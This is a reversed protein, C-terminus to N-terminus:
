EKLYSEIKNRIINATEKSSTKGDIFSIVDDCITYVIDNNYFYNYNLESIIEDTKEIVLPEVKNAVVKKDGEGIALEGTKYFERMKQNYKKNSSFYDFPVINNNFEESSIFKIFEWVESKYPSNKNIACTRPLFGYIDNNKEAKPLLFMKYGENFIDGFLLDITGYSYANSCVFAINRMINADESSIVFDETSEDSYSIEPSNLEKLNDLLSILYDSNRNLDLLNSINSQLIHYTLYKADDNRLAYYKTGGTDKSLEKAISFFEEWTWNKDDIKIGKENLIKENAYMAYFDFSVPFLYQKNNIKVADMVNELYHGKNAEDIYNDLDELLDKDAYNKYSWDGYLMDPGKGAMLDKAVSKEYEEKSVEFNEIIKISIDKNITEFKRAAVKIHEEVVDTQIVIEKKGSNINDSTKSFNYLLPKEDYSVGCLYIIGNKDINIQNCSRMAVYDLYNFLGEEKGSDLDYKIMKDQDVLYISNKWYQIANPLAFINLKKSLTAKGEMSGFKEVLLEISFDDKDAASTLVINGKDDIDILIYKKDDITTILNMNEDFVEIYDNKLIYIRGDKDVVAKNYINHDECCEDHGLDEDHEHQDHDHHGREDEALNIEKEKIKNGTLDYVDLKRLCQEENFFDSIIYLNDQSDLAYEISDFSYKNSNFLQVEKETLIQGGSDLHQYKLKYLPEGSEEAPAILATLVLESNSNMMMREIEPTSINNLLDHVNYTFSSEKLSNADNSCSVLNIGIFILMIVAIAKRM